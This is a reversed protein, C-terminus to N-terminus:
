SDHGSLTFHQLQSLKTGNTTIKYVTITGSGPESSYSTTVPEPLDWRWGAWVRARTRWPM